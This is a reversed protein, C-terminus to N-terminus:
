HVGVGNSREKLLQSIVWGLHGEHKKLQGVRAAGIEQALALRNLKDVAGRHCRCLHNDFRGFLRHLKDLKPVPNPTSLLSPNMCGRASTMRDKPNVDAAISRRLAAQHEHIQSPRLLRDVRGVVVGLSLLLAGSDIRGEGRELPADPSAGRSAIGVVM